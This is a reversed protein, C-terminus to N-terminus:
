QLNNFFEVAPYPQNYEFVKVGDKWVQMGGYFTLRLEKTGDKAYLHTERIRYESLDTVSLQLPKM